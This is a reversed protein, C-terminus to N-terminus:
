LVNTRRRKHKKVTRNALAESAVAVHCKLFKTNYQITLISSQHSIITTQRVTPRGTASVISIVENSVTTIIFNASHAFRLLSKSHQNGVQKPLLQEMAHCEPKQGRLFFILPFACNVSTNRGGPAWFRYMLHCHRLITGHRHWSTKAAM